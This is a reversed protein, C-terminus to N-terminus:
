LRGQAFDFPHAGIKAIVGKDIFIDQAQKHMKDANVIVANRILLSM